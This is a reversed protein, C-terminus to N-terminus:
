KRWTTEPRKKQRKRRASSRNKNSGANKEASATEKGAKESNEVRAIYKKYNFARMTQETTMNRVKGFIPREPFPRDHKGTIAWAVNAYANPCCGDIFYKNNLYLATEFAEQPTESWELIKKAWFMRLYNPLFGTITMEKMCANWLRDGTRAQELHERSYRLPREDYSHKKLTKRAWEPACDFSDYNEDYFAFNEALERRVILQELFSSKDAAPASCAAVELAVRHVSIQGFRLYPSLHSTIDLCPDNKRKSYGPLGERIFDKLRRGAEQSGGKFYNSIGVSRDIKLGKLLNLLNGRQFNIGEIKMRDSGARARVAPIPVLFEKLNKEIRPKLTHEGYEERGILRIPVVVDGDVLLLKVPLKEAAAHRWGKGLRTHNDDVVVLAAKLQSALKVIEQHPFGKRCVFKIRQRALDGAVEKLGALMFYCSRMNAEPLKEALGFFVVVPLKMENAKEIALNLALNDAARQSNEMWYIVCKGSTRVDAGNVDIIRLVKPDFAEEQQEEEKKEKEEVM